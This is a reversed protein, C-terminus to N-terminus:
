VIGIDPKSLLEREELPRGLDAPHLSVLILQAKPWVGKVDKLRAGVPNIQLLGGLDQDLAPHHGFVVLWTLFSNAITICKFSQWIVRNLRRCPLLPTTQIGSLKIRKGKRLHWTLM